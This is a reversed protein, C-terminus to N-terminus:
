VTTALQHLRLMAEQAAAAAAATQRQEGKQGAYQM